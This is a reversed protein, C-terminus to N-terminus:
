EPFEVDSWYEDKATNEQALKRKVLCSRAAQCMLCYDEAYRTFSHEYCPCGDIKQEIEDISMDEISKRKDM